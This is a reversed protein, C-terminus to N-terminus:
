SVKGRGWVTFVGKKQSLLLAHTLLDNERAVCFRFFTLEMCQQGPFMIDGVIVNIANPHGIV